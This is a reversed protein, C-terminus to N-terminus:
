SKDVVRRAPFVTVSLGSMQERYGQCVGRIRSASVIELRENAICEILALASVSDPGLPLRELKLVVARPADNYLSFFFLPLGYLTQVERAIPAFLELASAHIMCGDLTCVEVNPFPVSPAPPVGRSPAKVYSLVDFFRTPPMGVFARISEESKIVKQFQM